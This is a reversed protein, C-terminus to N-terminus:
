NGVRRPGLHRMLLRPWDAVHRSKKIARVLDRTEGNLAVDRNGGKERLNLGKLVADHTGLRTMTWWVWTAHRVQDSGDQFRPRFGTDKFRGTRYWPTGDPAGGKIGRETCVAYLDNTLARLVAARKGSPLLLADWTVLRQLSRLDSVAPNRADREALRSLVTRRAADDTSLDSFLRVLTGAVILLRAWGDPRTM